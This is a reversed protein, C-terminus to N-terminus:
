FYDAFYASVNFPGTIFYIKACLRNIALYIVLVFIQM